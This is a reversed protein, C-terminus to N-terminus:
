ATHAGQGWGRLWQGFGGPSSHSAGRMRRATALAASGLAGIVAPSNTRFQFSQGPEVIVDQPDGDITVWLAGRRASLQVHEPDAIRVFHNRDLSLPIPAFPINM